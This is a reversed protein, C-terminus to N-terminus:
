FLSLVHLLGLDEHGFEVWREIRTAAIETIFRRMDITATELSLLFNIAHGARGVQESKWQRVSTILGLSFLTFCGKPVPSSRSHGYNLTLHHYRHNEM